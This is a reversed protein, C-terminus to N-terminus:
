RKAAPGQVTVPVNEFAQNGSSDTARITVQHRGPTLGAITFEATEEPGDWINDSPLIAQWDRSSDVSYEGASVVGTQDVVRFSVKVDAGRQETKIDGIVPPTNDVLVPDSVRSATLGKGPVNAAADSAVVKVEYRGDAM